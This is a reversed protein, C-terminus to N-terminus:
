IRSYYREGNKEGCRLNGVAYQAQHVSEVYAIDLIMSATKEGKLHPRHLSNQLILETIESYSYYKGKVMKKLFNKCKLDFLKDMDNEELPLNTVM